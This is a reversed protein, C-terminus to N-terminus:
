WVYAFCRGDVCSGTPKRRKPRAEKQHPDVTKVNRSNDRDGWWVYGPPSWKPRQKPFRDYPASTPTGMKREEHCDCSPPCPCDNVMSGADYKNIYSQAENPSMHAELRSRLIGQPLKGGSGYMETDQGGHVQFFSDPTPYQKHFAARGAATDPFGAKALMQQAKNM